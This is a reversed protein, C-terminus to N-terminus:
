GSESGVHVPEGYVGSVSDAPLNGRWRWALDFLTDHSRGADTPHLVRGVLGGRVARGAFRVRAMVHGPVSFSARGTSDIVLDSVGQSGMTRYLVRHQASDVLLMWASFDAHRDPDEDHTAFYIGPRLTTVPTTDFDAPIMVAPMVAAPAAAAVSDSVTVSDH